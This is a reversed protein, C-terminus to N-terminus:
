PVYAYDTPIYVPIGGLCVGGMKVTGYLIADDVKHKLQPGVSLRILLAVFVM